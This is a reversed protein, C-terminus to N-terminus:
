RKGGTEREVIREKGRLQCFRFCFFLILGSNSLNFVFSYIRARASVHGKSEKRGSFIGGM